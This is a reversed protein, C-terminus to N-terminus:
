PLFLSNIYQSIYYLIEKRTDILNQENGKEILKKSKGRELSKKRLISPIFALIFPSIQSILISIVINQLVIFQTYYYTSCFCLLCYFTSMFIFINLIFLIILKELLNNNLIIIIEELTFKLFKNNGFLSSRKMKNIHKIFKKKSNTFYFLIQSIINVIITALFSKKLCDLFSFQHNYLENIISNKNLVIANFLFYLEIKISYYLLIVDTDEYIFFRKMLFFIIQCHSLIDFYIQKLSRNDHLLVDSNYKSYFFEDPTSDLKVEKEKTNTKITTKSNMKNFIYNAKDEKNEDDSKKDIEIKKIEDLKAKPVDMYGFTVIDDMKISTNKLKQQTNKDEPENSDKIDNIKNKNLSEFEIQNQDYNQCNEIDKQPVEDKKPEETLPHFITNRNNEIANAETDTPLVNIQEKIKKPKNKKNKFKKWYREENNRSAVEYDGIFLFVFSIIQIIFITTVIYLSINYVIIMPSFHHKFCSYINNRKIPPFTEEIETENLLIHISLNSDTNYYYYKRRYELSVDRKTNSYFISCIDSFFKDNINTINYDQESCYNIIKDNEEYNEEPHVEIIFINALLFFLLIPTNKTM